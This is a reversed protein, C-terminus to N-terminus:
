FHRDIYDIYDKKRVLERHNKYWAFSNKLGNLLDTTDPMIKCQEGVDLCYEYNYFCFYNRQEDDNTVYVLEANKGVAQYCLKVWESVSVCDVNGVNLIHQEPKVALIRDMLRCLDGIYFFQLKMNNKPLYFKREQMACDFVFAERYLNNMDGYLYPPRLIYANPVKALLAKEAKIKNIGYDGWIKNEGVPDIERFPQPLTEPYVASSSIMIYEDFTIGANLLANIHEETYATIDMVVDFHMNKLTDGLHNRDAKILTVNDSQPYNGRNLVFVFNHKKAYYEAVYRSAFVTGGTVLIKM